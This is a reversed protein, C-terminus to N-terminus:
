AKTKGVGPMGSLEGVGMGMVDGLCRGDSLLTKVDTKNVGRVGGLVSTARGVYDGGLDKKIGDSGKNEYSKFTELYRGCEGASFGVIVTFGYHVSAKTIQGLAVQSDETDVQVVVVKGRVSTNYVGGGGGSGEGRVWANVGKMRGYVYEPNLLHYRLSIFIAVTRAGLLYDPGAPGLVLPDVPEYQWHVNRITKLVPNGRQNQNVLLTSCLASSSSSSAM